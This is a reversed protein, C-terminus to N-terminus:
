PLLNRVSMQLVRGRALAFNVKEGPRLTEVRAYRGKGVQPETYNEVVRDPLNIIVYQPIGSDAYTALKETRDNDVSSDAVEIVCTVDAAAPKRKKYDDENGRIIAGDPEPEDHGTMVVPGQTQMHFGLRALRPGLRALNKVAWLHERGITMRDEGRASRDKFVLFGGILEYPEGSKLIGADIMRHYEDVTIKRCLRREAVGCTGAGDIETSSHRESLM